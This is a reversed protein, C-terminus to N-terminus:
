QSLCGSIHTISEICTKSHRVRMSVLAELEDAATSDQQCLSALRSIQDVYKQVVCAVEPLFAYSHSTRVM